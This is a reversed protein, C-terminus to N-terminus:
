MYRPLTISCMYVLRRNADRGRISLSPSLMHGCVDGRMSYKAIRIEQMYNAIDIIITYSYSSPSLCHMVVDGRRNCKVIRIEKKYNAIDSFITGVFIRYFIRAKSRHIM